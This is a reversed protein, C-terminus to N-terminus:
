KKEFADKSTIYIHDFHVVYTANDVARTVMRINTLTIDEGPGFKEPVLTAPLDSLPIAVLSWEGSKESLGYRHLDAKPIMKMYRATHLGQLDNLEQNCDLELGKLTRLDDVKMWFVLLDNRYSVPINLNGIITRFDNVSENGECRISSNGTKKDELDYSCGYWEQTIVGDFGNYEGDTVLRDGEPLTPAVYDTEYYVVRLDDVEVMMGDHAQVHIGFSVINQYDFDPHIYNHLNFSLEVEHWGNGTLTHNWNYAHGYHDYAHFFFTAQHEQRKGYVADHDCIVKQDDELFLWLKLTTQKRNEVSFHFANQVSIIDELHTNASTKTFRIAGKGEKQYTEDLLYTGYQEYLRLADDELTDFDYLHEETYDKVYDSYQVKLPSGQADESLLAEFKTKKVELERSVTVTGNKVNLQKMLEKVGWEIMEADSGVVVLTDGYVRILYAPGDLVGIEQLEELEEQAKQSAERKTNGILIEKQTTAEQYDTAMKLAADSCEELFTHLTLFAQKEGSMAADRRVMVYESTKNSALTLRMPDDPSTNETGGDTPGDSPSDSPGDSPGAPPPPTCASLLVALLLFMCIWRLMKM